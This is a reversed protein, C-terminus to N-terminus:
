NDFQAIVTAVAYLKCHSISIEIAQLNPIEYHIKLTPKGTEMKAVEFRKWDFPQILSNGLAKFTAEKAAFRAAYHQYKEQNVIRLRM